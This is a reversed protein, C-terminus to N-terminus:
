PAETPALLSEGAPTLRFSGRFADEPTGPMLQCLGLRLLVKMTPSRLDQAHHNHYFGSCTRWCTRLHRLADLQTASLKPVKM